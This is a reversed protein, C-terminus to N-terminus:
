MWLVDMPGALRLGHVSCEGVRSPASHWASHCWKEVLAVGSACGAADPTAAEGDGGCFSGM